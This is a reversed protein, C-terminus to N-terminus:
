TRQPGLLYTSRVQLTPQFAPISRGLLPPVLCHRVELIVELIVEQIVELIVVQTVEVLRPCDRCGRFTAQLM